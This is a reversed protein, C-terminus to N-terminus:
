ANRIHRVGDTRGVPIIGPMAYEKACEPNVHAEEVTYYILYMM